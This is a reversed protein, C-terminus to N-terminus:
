AHPSGMRQTTSGNGVPTTRSHPMTANTLSPHAHVIRLLAESRVPEDAGTHLVVADVAAVPRHQVSGDLANMRVPGM